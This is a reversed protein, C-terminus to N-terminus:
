RVTNTYSLKFLIIPVIQDFDLSSIPGDPERSLIFTAM